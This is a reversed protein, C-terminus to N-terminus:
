NYDYPNPNGVEIRPPKFADQQELEKQIEKKLTSGYTEWFIARAQWVKQTQQAAYLEATSRWFFRLKGDVTIPLGEIGSSEVCYQGMYPSLLIFSSACLRLIAGVGFPGLIAPTEVGRLLLVLDGIFCGAAVALCLAHLWLNPDWLVVFCFPANGKFPSPALGAPRSPTSISISPGTRSEM